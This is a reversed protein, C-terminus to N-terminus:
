SSKAGSQVSAVFIVGSKRSGLIAAREDFARRTIRAEM